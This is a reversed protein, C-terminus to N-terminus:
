SLPIPNRVVQPGAQREVRQLHREEGAAVADGALEDVMGATANLIGQDAIGLSQFIDARDARDTTFSIGIIVCCRLCAGSPKRFYVAPRIHSYM